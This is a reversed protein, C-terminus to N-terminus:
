QQNLDLFIKNQDELSFEALKFGIGRSRVKGVFEELLQTVEERQEDDHFLYLSVMNDPLNKRTVQEDKGYFHLLVKLATDVDPYREDPNRRCCTMIFEALVPPTEKIFERPDPIDKNLHMERLAALDDDPYPLRGTLLQFATIGLGYLDTRADVPFSEIQEPSMYQLTGEM